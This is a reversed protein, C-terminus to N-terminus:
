SFLRRLFFKNLRAAAATTGFFNYDPSFSFIVTRRESPPSFHAFGTCLLLEGIRRDTCELIFTLALSLSLSLKNTHPSISPVALTVMKVIKPHEQHWINRCCYGVKQAMKFVSSKLPFVVTPVKLPVKPSSQAVKEKLIQDCQLCRDCVVVVRNCWRLSLSPAQTHIYACMRPYNLYIRPKM